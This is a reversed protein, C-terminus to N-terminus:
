PARDLHAPGVPAPGALGAADCTSAPGTGALADLSRQVRGLAGSALQRNAAATEEVETTLDLFARRHDEFVTRLAAPARRALEPLTLEETPTGLQAAVRALAQVRQEEATHLAAVVQEVEDMVVSVFRHEDAALLLRATTMRYLLAEVVHREHWLTDALGELQLALLTDDM